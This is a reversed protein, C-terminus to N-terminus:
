MVPAVARERAPAPAASRGVQPNIATLVANAMRGVEGRDGNIVVRRDSVARASVDDAPAMHAGSSDVLEPADALHAGAGAADPEDGWDEGVIFDWIALLARKV